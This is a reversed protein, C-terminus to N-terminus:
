SYSEDDLPFNSSRVDKGYRTVADRVMDRLNGYRRVFKPVKHHCGLMDEAVLIQGDCSAGAGIGILPCSERESMGDMAQNTVAEVVIAFAGAERVATLDGRFTAIEEDTRGVSRFSKSMLTLQPQMGVHGMVPIGASVIKHITHARGQGGEIKVADAGARIFSLANEIAQEDSIELSGFPMDAVILSSPCARVVSQVHFMMMSMDVQNTHPALHRVMGVSDGVLLVDVLDGYLAASLGDYATLCVIKEGKQKMRILSLPSVKKRVESAFSM